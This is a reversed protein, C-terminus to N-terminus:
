VRQLVCLNGHIPQAANMRIVASELAAVAWGTGGAVGRIYSPSHAYRGTPQLTYGPGPEGDALLETSLAFLASAAPACCASVRRTLLDGQTHKARGVWVPM